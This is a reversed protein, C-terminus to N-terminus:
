QPADGVDSVFFFLNIITFYINNIVEAYGPLITGAIASLLPTRFGDSLRPSAVLGFLYFYRVIKLIFRKKVSRIKTKDILAKACFLRGSM